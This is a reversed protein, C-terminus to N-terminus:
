ERFAQIEEPTLIPEDPAPGQTPRPGSAPRDPQALGLVQVLRQMAHGVLEELDTVDGLPLPAHRPAVSAQLLDGVREVRCLVEGALRWVLASGDGSVVLEEDLRGMREVLAAGLPELRAPLSRLFVEPGGAAGVSAGGDIRVLYARERTASRISELGFVMVGADNLVSLREALRADSSPSVVVVRPAREASVRLEGFHRVVLELRTRVFRLADLVEVVARDGEEPALLVWYLRGAPDVAVLDARAGGEFVLERELVELGPVVEDLGDALAGLPGEPVDPARGRRAAPPAADATEPEPDPGGDKRGRTAM